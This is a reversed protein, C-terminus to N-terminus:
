KFYVLKYNEVGIFLKPDDPLIRKHMSHIGNWNSFILEFRRRYGSDDTETLVTKMNKSGGSYQSADLWESTWAGNIVTGNNTRVYAGEEYSGESSKIIYSITEKDHYLNVSDENSPLNGVYDTYDFTWTRDISVQEYICSGDSNKAKSDYNIAAEDNCGRKGCSSFIAMVAILYIIKKM